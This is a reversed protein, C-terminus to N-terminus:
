KAPVIKCGKLPGVGYCVVDDWKGTKWNYQKSGSQKSLDVGAINLNQNFLLGGRKVKRTKVRGKKVKRTKVRRTKKNKSKKSKKTKGGRKNLNESILDIEKGTKEKIQKQVELTPYQRIAQEDLLKKKNSNYFRADELMINVRSNNLNPAPPTSAKIVFLGGIPGREFDLEEEGENVEWDDHGYEEEEPAYIDTVFQGIYKWPEDPNNNQLIEENTLNKVKNTEILYSPGFHMDELLVEELYQNEIPKLSNNNEM